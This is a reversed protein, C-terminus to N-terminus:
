QMERQTLVEPILWATVIDDPMDCEPIRIMVYGHDLAYADKAADAEASGKHLAYDSYHWFMGDIEILINYDLLLFDYVRNYGKPRFQQKYRINVADLLTKFKMELSSPCFRRTDQRLISNLESRHAKMSTLMLQRYNDDTWQQLASNSRLIRFNPDKWQRAIRDILLQKYQPDTRKYITRCQQCRVSHLGIKKGCDICYKTPQTKGVWQHKGACSKCRKHGNNIVIECDMCHTIRKM